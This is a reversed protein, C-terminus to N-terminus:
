DIGVWVAVMRAMWRSGTVPRMQAVDTPRMTWKWWGHHGGGALGGLGSEPEFGALGDLTTLVDTEM